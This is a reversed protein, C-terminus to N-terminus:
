YWQMKRNYSNKYKGSRDFARATVPGENKEWYGPTRKDEYKPPKQKHTNARPGLFRLYENEYKTGKFHKALKFNPDYYVKTLYHFLCSLDRVLVKEAKPWKKGLYCVLLLTDGPSKFVEILQKSFNKEINSIKKSNNHRVIYEYAKHSKTKKGM